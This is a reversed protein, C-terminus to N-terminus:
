RVFIYTRDAFIQRSLVNQRHVGRHHVDPAYEAQGEVLVLLINTQVTWTLTKLSAYKVNAATTSEPYVDALVLMRHM